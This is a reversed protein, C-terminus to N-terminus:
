QAFMRLTHHTGSHQMGGNSPWCEVSSGATMEVSAAPPVGLCRM